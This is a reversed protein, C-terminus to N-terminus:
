ILLKFTDERKEVNRGRGGQYELRDMAMRMWLWYTTIRERREKVKGCERAEPSGAKESESALIPMTHCSDEELSLRPRRRPWPM